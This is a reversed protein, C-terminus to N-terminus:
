WGQGGPFQLGCGQDTCQELHLTGQSDVGLDRSEETAVDPDLSALQTLM